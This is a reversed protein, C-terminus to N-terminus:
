LTPNGCGMGTCIPIDMRVYVFGGQALLATTALRPDEVVAATAGTALSVKWLVRGSEYGSCNLEEEVVFISTGDSTIGYLAGGGCGGPVSAWPTLVGTAVDVRYISQYDLVAYVYGDGPAVMSRLAVTTSVTTTSLDAISTKRLGCSSSTYVFQSDAAIATARSFRATGAPGDLCGSTGPLGAITVVAGTLTTRSVYDPGAVYLATGSVVSASPANLVAAVGTGAATATGGSGAFTSVKGVSMGTAAGLSRVGVSEGAPMSQAVRAPTAVSHVAAAPASGLAQAPVAVVGVLATSLMVILAHVSTRSPRFM